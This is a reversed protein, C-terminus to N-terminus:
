PGVALDYTVWSTANAVRDYLGRATANDEATVWRVIGHGREMAVARCREILAAGVGGGRVSPDVFLDDLWLGTSAALPRAFPCVHALGVLRGDLRAGFGFVEHNPDMIWDWVRVRMKATQDQRYFTAYAVYLENWRDRDEHALPTVSITGHPM